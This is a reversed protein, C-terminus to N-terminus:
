ENKFWEKNGEEFVKKAIESHPSLLESNGLVCHGSIKGPIPDLVSRTFKSYDGKIAALSYFGYNYDKTWETYVKEFPIKLKECTEYVERMFLVEWGLRTTCYLKAVETVNYNLVFEVKWKTYELYQKLQEARYSAADVYDMCSVLLKFRQMENILPHRGRLPAHFVWRNLCEAKECTGIAVTSHIIYTPNYGFKNVIDVVMDSPVCVHIVQCTSLDGLLGKPPDYLHIEHADFQELLSKFAGGVEGVGAIGVRFIGPM